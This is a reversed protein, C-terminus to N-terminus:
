EDYKSTDKMVRLTYSTRTRRPILKKDWPDDVGEPISHYWNHRADGAMVILSMRQSRVVHFRRGDKHHFVTNVGGGTSM